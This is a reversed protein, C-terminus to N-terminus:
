LKTRIRGSSTVPMSDPLATLKHYPEHEWHCHKLIVPIVVAEGREQRARLPSLHKGLESRLTEDERAYSYFLRCSSRHTDLPNEAPGACDALRPTPRPARPETQELLTTAFQAITRRLRDFFEPKNADQELLIRVNETTPGRTIQLLRRAGYSQSGRTDWRDIPDWLLDAAALAKGVGDLAAASDRDYSTATSLPEDPRQKMCTDLSAFARKINEWYPRDEPLLPDLTGIEPM